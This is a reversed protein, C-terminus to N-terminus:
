SKTIKGWNLEAQKMLEKENENWSKLTNTFFFNYFLYLKGDVIKYTEPDIKVKSGDAGMAYACWGGYQPLYKKPDLKFLELNKSSEFYYYVDNIKVSYKESGRVPKDNFYSMPDYSNVGIGGIANTPNQAFLLQSFLVISTFIFIKM